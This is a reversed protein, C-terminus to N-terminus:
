RDDPSSPPQDKLEEVLHSLESIQGEQEYFPNRLVKVLKEVSSRSPGKPPRRTMSLKWLDKNRLLAVLWINIVAFVLIIIAIAALALPSINGM